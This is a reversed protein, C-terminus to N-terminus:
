GAAPGWSVRHVGHGNPVPTPMGGDASMTYLQTDADSSSNDILLIQTGDPSFSGSGYNRDGSTLTALGTADPRITHLESHADDTHFLIRTGDPAWDLKGVAAMNWPTLRRLGHGNFGIVFLASRTDSLVRAFAVRTGDPSVAPSEDSPLFQPPSSIGPSRTLRRLHKGNLDMVWLSNDKAQVRSYVIWRGNPTFAPSTQLGNPTLTRLGSGNAHMLLISAHTPFERSFAITKGDPSWSSDESIHPGHTIQRVGSGDPEMTYLQTWGGVQRQFLLLGNKGPPTASGTAAALSTFATAAIVLIGVRVIPKM